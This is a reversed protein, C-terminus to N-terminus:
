DFYKTFLLCSNLGGFGLSTSVVAKCDHLPQGAAPPKSPHHHYAWASLTEVSLAADTPEPGPQRGDISSGEPSSSGGTAELTPPPILHVQREKQKEASWCPVTMNTNPPAYQHHLALLAIIAEVSGAAGLLHGIAGKSSSVCLPAAPSPNECHSRLVRQLAALEIVDGMTGTAHANAYGVVEPPVRGGDQLALQICREVGNGNPHPAAIHHADSAIGIGRLEGYVGGKEEETRVAPSSAPNGHNQATAVPSSVAGTRCCPTALPAHAWGRPRLWGRARAHAESELVVIGAGEGMVFGDRKADFPRSALLPRDNYATSLARMRAFGAIAVPTICAEASGCIAVDVQGTQIWRAAEAICYAGTACAAVNSSTPGTIGYRISIMAAPSSGLIKPVFFPHVKNYEIGATTRWSRHIEHPGGEREEVGGCPHHAKRGKRATVVAESTPSSSANCVLIGKPNSLLAASVDCVDAICPIGVGIQVGVRDLSSYPALSLLPSSSASTSSTTAARSPRTSVSGLPIGNGNQLSTEKKTEEVHLGADKLAEEVAAVCFQYSRPAHPTPPFTGGAPRRTVTDGRPPARQLEAGKEGSSTAACSVGFSSSVSRVLSPPCCSLPLPHVPAAVRCPLRSVLQHLFAEKEERSLQRHDSISSPLFYPTMHLPCGGSVVGTCLAEYTSSASWGIPSVMGIGTVLVRHRPTPPFAGFM